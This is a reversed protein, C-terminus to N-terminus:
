DGQIEPNKRIQFNWFIFRLRSTLPSVIYSVAQSCLYEERWKKRDKFELDLNEAIKPADNNKIYKTNDM